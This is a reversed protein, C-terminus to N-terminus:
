KTRRNYQDLISDIGTTNEYEMNKLNYVVKPQNEFISNDTTVLAFALEKELAIPDEYEDIKEKFAAIVEEELRASYKQLVAEKAEREKALKYEQLGNIEETLTNNKTNSVELEQVLNDREMTLTSNSTKLEDISSQIQSFNGFATILINYIKKEAETMDVIYTKELSNLIVEEETKSYYARFYESTEYKFVLAYEDYVDVITYDVVWDNEENFNQNLIKFLANVKESDSIKYTLEVKKAEKKLNYQELQALLKELEEQLSYFSAGEFCPLTGDGLIQLGLFCGDTFVFQRKGDIIRWEGKSFEHSLEMSLDSGVIETAEPYISTFLLVDACAYERTVGDEDVFSEWNFNPQEPVIGYIRGLDRAAGHDTFSKDGNSYIGKVPTYPLSQILKEAFEDTIYTGNRNGYKYFIRCRAKSLTENFAQLPSYVQVEFNFLNDM